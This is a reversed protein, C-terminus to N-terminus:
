DFSEILSAESSPCQRLSFSLSHGQALALCSMSINDDQAWFLVILHIMLRDHLMHWQCFDVYGVAAQQGRGTLIMTSQASSSAFIKKTIEMCTNIKVLVIRKQSTWMSRESSIRPPFVILLPYPNPVILCLFKYIGWDTWALLRWCWWQPAYGLTWSLLAPLSRVIFCAAAQKFM